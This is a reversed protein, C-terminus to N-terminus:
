KASSAALSTGILVRLDKTGQSGLKTETLKLSVKSVYESASAETLSDPKVSSGALLNRSTEPNEKGLLAVGVLVRLTKTEEGLGSQALNQSATSIIKRAKDQGLEETKVSTGRLLDKAVSESDTPTISAALLVRIQDVTERGLKPVLRSSANNIIQNIKEQDGISEPKISGALLSEIIPNLGEPEQKETINDSM